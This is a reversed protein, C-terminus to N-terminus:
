PVLGLLLTETHFSKGCKEYDLLSAADTEDLGLFHTFATSLSIASTDNSAATLDELRKFQLTTNPVEALLSKECFQLAPALPQTIRSYHAM